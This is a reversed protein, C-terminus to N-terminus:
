TLHYWAFDPPHPTKGVSIFMFVCGGRNNELTELVPVASCEPETPRPRAYSSTGLVGCRLLGGAADPRAGPM